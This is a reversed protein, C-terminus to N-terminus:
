PGVASKKKRAPPRVRVSIADDTKVEVTVGAVSKM